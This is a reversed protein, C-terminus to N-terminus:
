RKKNHITSFVFTKKYFKGCLCNERLLDITKKISNTQIFNEKIWKIVEKNHKSVNLNSFQSYLNM